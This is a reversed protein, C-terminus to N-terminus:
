VSRLRPRDWDAWLWAAASPALVTSCATAPTSRRRPIMSRATPIMSPRDWRDASTPRMAVRMSSTVSRVLRSPILAEMMAAWAPSCPAPNATTASSILDSERCIPPEVRSM